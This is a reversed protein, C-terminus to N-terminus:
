KKIKIWNKAITLLPKIGSLFGRKRFLITYQICKSLSMRSLIYFAIGEIFPKYPYQEGFNDKYWDAFMINAIATKVSNYDYKRASSLNENSIRFSFLVDKTTAIGNSSLYIATASDSKAATPFDPFGGMAKLATTKFVYNALCLIMPKVGFYPQFEDQTLLEPIEGDEVVSKDNELRRAKARLIDIHPYKQVLRNIEELFSSDYIDDDSAMILYDTDCMDVLLNWHSVLSKGGMNEENCRYTFRTDSGVVNDFITKLDEPSCDDSVICTYDTYTQQKISELAEALYVSKYAPLLFTYRMNKTTSSPEM